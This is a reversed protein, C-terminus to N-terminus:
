ESGMLLFGVIVSILGTAVWIGVISVPMNATLFMLKGQDSLMTFALVILLIGGTCASFVGFYKDLKRHINIVNYREEELANVTAKEAKKQSSIVSQSPAKVIIEKKEEDSGLFNGGTLRISSISM